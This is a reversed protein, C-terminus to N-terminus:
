RCRCSRARVTPRPFRWGACSCRGNRPARGVSCSPGSVDPRLGGGPVGPLRQCGQRRCPSDATRDALMRGHGILELFVEEFVTADADLRHAERIGPLGDLGVVVVRGGDGVQQAFQHRGGGQQGGVDLEIARQHQLDLAVARDGQQHHFAAGVEAQAGGDLHAFAMVHRGIAVHLTQQVRAAIAAENHHQVGLVLHGALLGVLANHWQFAFGDGFGQLVVHLGGLLEVGTEPQGGVGVMGGAHQDLAQGVM